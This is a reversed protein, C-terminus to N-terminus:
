ESPDGYRPDWDTFRDPRHDRKKRARAAARARAAQKALRAAARTRWRRRLWGSM